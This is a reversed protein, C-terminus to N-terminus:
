VDRECVDGRMPEAKAIRIPNAVFFFKERVM